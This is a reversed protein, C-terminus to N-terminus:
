YLTALCPSVVFDYTSQDQISSRTAKSDPVTTLYPRQISARFLTSLNIIIPSLLLKLSSGLHSVTQIRTLTEARDSVDDQVEGAAAASASRAQTLSLPTASPAPSPFDGSNPFIM